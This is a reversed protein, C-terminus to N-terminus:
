FFSLCSLLPMCILQFCSDANMKTQQRETTNAMGAVAAVLVMLPPKFNSCALVPKANVPCCAEALHSVQWM